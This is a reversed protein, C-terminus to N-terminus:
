FNRAWSPITVQSSKLNFVYRMFLSEIFDPSHGVIKKMQDKKILCWGNDEKSMDQRIAKREDQLIDSLLKNKYGKGNFRRELLSPEFSIEGRIIKDAFMWACQSKITDYQGKYKPAVSERNNFPRAHKFFGKFSQGLGNLDYTYNQEIVGWEQLKTKIASATSVSDMRCVFIDKIHDGEWLWTVCNDGGTFALDSSARKVRDGSMIPNDFCRILHQMKILDNGMAMFKWNGDLDRAQAEESQNMLNGLYEPSSLLLKRNFKLEARIFTVSKISTYLKSMGLKEYEPDWHRDIDEKCQEYVEQRTNGWVVETVDEGKMYCYRIVGNREQLPEGDDGIWWGIFPAVWSMPDPNCTGIFRNPIHSANRNCTILYKFKSYEIQTFEDVGIYSFQQGQFRDKFDEYSDEFYTLKLEAGSDFYWTMDDKSKNYHGLRSYLRRSDKVINTLDNKEKRFIVANFTPKHVDYLAEMLLTFTNHNVTFADTLYLHHHGTVTICRYKENGLKRKIGIIKKTLMDPCYPSYPMNAITLADRKYQADIFAEKNDPATILVRKWGVKDIDDTVEGVRCWWGVSRCLQAFEEAFKVNSTDLYPHQKRSGGSSKIAGRIYEMRTYVSGYKYQYPIVAPQKNRALGIADVDEVSIGRLYVKDVGVINQYYGCALIKEYAEKGLMGILAGQSKSFQWYGNGCIYGLVFPHIPMELPTLNEQMTVRGCLPIEAYTDGYKLNNPYEANQIYPKMIEKLEMERFQEDPRTRAWFRHTDLVDCTTGDDFTVIYGKRLGQEFINCVKQVGEYPTCIEDGIQLDGMLKVGYPTIVPTKYSNAKGGGRNGGTILIDVNSHLDDEQPGKQAIFNNSNKKGEESKRLNEIFDNSVVPIGDTTLLGTKEM